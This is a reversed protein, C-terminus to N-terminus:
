APRAVIIPDSTPALSGGDPEATVLVAEVGRLDGPVPVTARGNQVRFLATTPQPSRAPRKLWVQYVKGGPPPPLKTVALRAEGDDLVLTARADPADALLVRAAVTRAPAGGDEGGTLALAGAIGVALVVSAAVVAPLPSLRLDGWRRGRRAPAPAGARTGSAALLEVESRVIRMIRERLEPAPAVQPAALPLTDAVPRLSAVERRCRECGALHAAFREHEDAPLAGLVYSAADLTHECDTM